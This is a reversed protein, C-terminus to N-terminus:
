RNEQQHNQTSELKLVNHLSTNEIYTSQYSLGPCARLDGVWINLLLPSAELISSFVFVLCSKHIDCCVISYSSQFHSNCRIGHFLPRWCASDWFLHTFVWSFGTFFYIFYTFLAFCFFDLSIFALSIFIHVNVVPMSLPLKPFTFNFLVRKMSSEFACKFLSPFYLVQHVCALYFFPQKWAAYSDQAPICLAFFSLASVLFVSATVRLHISYPSPLRGCSVSFGISVSSPHLVTDRPSPWIGQDLFLLHPSSHTPESSAM